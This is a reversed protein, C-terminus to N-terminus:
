SLTAQVVPRGVVVRLGVEAVHIVLRRGVHLIHVQQEVWLAEGAVLSLGRPADPPGDVRLVAEPSSSTHPCSSAFTVLLGRHRFAGHLRVQDSPLDPSCTLSDRNILLKSSHMSQIHANILSGSVTGIKSRTKRGCTRTM